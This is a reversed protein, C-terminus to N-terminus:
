NNQRLVGIERAISTGRLLSTIPSLGVFERSTETGLAPPQGHLTRSCTQFGTTGVKSLLNEALDGLPAKVFRQFDLYRCKNVSISIYTQMTRPIVTVSSAGFLGVAHTILRSEHASLNECVVPLFSAEKM